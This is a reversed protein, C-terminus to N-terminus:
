VGNRSTLQCGSSFENRCKNRWRAISHQKYLHQMAQLKITPKMHLGSKIFVHIYSHVAYLM